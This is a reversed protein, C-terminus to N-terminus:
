VRGKIFDFLLRVVSGGVTKYDKKAHLFALGAIDLHVWPYDVFHELFKGATIHGAGRTGLNTFDAITSKLKNNEKRKM